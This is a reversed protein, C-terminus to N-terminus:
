HYFIDNKIIFTNSLIITAIFAFIKKLTKKILEM